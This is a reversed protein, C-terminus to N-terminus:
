RPMVGTGILVESLEAYHELKKRLRSIEVDKNLCQTKLREVDSRLRKLEKLSQDYLIHEFEAGSDSESGESELTKPNKKLQALLMTERLEKEWDLLAEKVLKNDNLTSKAIGVAKAVETRNLKSGRSMAVVDSPTLTVKWSNFKAM